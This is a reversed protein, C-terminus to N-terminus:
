SRKKLGCRCRSPPRAELGKWMKQRLGEYEECHLLFHKEDEVADAECFRCLRKEVPLKDYRGKEIRLRNTGSRLKKDTRPDRKPREGPPITGTRAQTESKHIDTVQTKLTHSFAMAERGTRPNTSTDAKEM